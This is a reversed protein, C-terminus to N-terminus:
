REPFEEFLEEMREIALELNFKSLDVQTLDRTAAAKWIVNGSSLEVVNILMRAEFVAEMHAPHGTESYTDIEVREDTRTRLSYKVELDPNTSETYGKDQLVRTIAQNLLAEFDGDISQRAHKVQFTQYRGEDFSLSQEHLVSMPQTQCGALLVLALLSLFIKSKTIKM